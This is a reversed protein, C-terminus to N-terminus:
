PPDGEWYDVEQEILSDYRESERNRGLVPDFTAAVFDHFGDGALEVAEGLGLVAGLWPVFSVVTEQWTSPLYMTVLEEVNPRVERTVMRVIREGQTGMDNSFRLERVLVDEGEARSPAKEAILLALRKLAEPDDTKFKSKDRWTSSKAHRELVHELGTWLM